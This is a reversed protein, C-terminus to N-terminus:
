RRLDRAQAYRRGGRTTRREIDKVFWEFQSRANGAVNRSTTDDADFSVDNSFPAIVVQIVNM